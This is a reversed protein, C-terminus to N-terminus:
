PQLSDSSPSAASERGVPAGDLDTARQEGGATIPTVPAGPSLVKWVHEGARAASWWFFPLLQYHGVPLRIWRPRGLGEWLVQTREPPVVTDFRGSILLAREPAIEGAFRLPDVPETYPRMFAVFEERGSLKREEVLHDRFARVPRESSEWLLEALGGGAMIFFGARVRHDVGMLTAALMGGLSVGGAAIRERDIEPRRELWDLFRRADRISDRFDRMPADPEARELRLPRRQLHLVALRQRVLAKALGESVVHSGALIPFVVVVPHPGPGEPLFLHASAERGDSGPIRVRTVTYNRAHFATYLHLVLADEVTVPSPELLVGDPDLPSYRLV